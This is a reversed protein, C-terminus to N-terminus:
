AGPTPDDPREGRDPADVSRDPDPRGDGHDALHANPDTPHFTEARRAAGWLLLGALLGLVLGTVIAPLVPFGLFGGLGGVTGAVAVAAIVAARLTRDM